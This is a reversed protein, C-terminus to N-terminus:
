PEPDTTPRRDDTTPRRDETKPRRDETTLRAVVHDIDPVTDDAVLLDDLTYPRQAPPM